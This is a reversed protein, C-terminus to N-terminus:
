RNEAGETNFITGESCSQDNKKKTRRRRRMRKRKRSKRMNRRKIKYINLM